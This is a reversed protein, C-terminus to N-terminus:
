TGKASDAEGIGCAHPAWVRVVLLAGTDDVDVAVGEGGDRM